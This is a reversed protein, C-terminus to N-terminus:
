FWDDGQGGNISLTGEEGAEGPISFLLFDGATFNPSSHM